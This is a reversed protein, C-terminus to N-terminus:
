KVHPPMKPATEPTAKTVENIVVDFVLTSYAPIVPPSGQPGYGLIFPIILKGKGGKGFLKLGEEWGRIVRHQGLVVNFPDTHKAGEGMNADFVKGDLTYGKYMVTAQWGSDAKQGEGANEVVVQVGGPTVITKFKKDAVYKTIREKEKATEGASEKEIKEQEKKNAATMEAMYEENAVKEDTYVKLIEVRGQVAGGKVFVESYDPIMHRNKLTDNDLLFEVKDGVALQGLVEAFDYKPLNAFDFKHYIPMKGFTSNLISDKGNAMKVKYELNFKVIQGSKVKVSNSGSSTIKYKMGSKAKEFKNCSSFFVVAVLLYSIIRM